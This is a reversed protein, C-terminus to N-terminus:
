KETRIFDKKTFIGKELASLVAVDVIWRFPEQFDYVLPAKSQNVETREIVNDDFRIDQSGV